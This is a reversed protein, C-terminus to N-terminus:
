FVAGEVRSEREASNIQGALVTEFDIQQQLWVIANEMVSLQVKRAAHWKQGEGESLVESFMLTCRNQVFCNQEGLCNITTFNSELVCIYFIHKKRNRLRKTWAQSRLKCFSSICYKQFIKKLFTIQNLIRQFLLVYFVRALFPSLLISTQVKM